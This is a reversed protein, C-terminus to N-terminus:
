AAVGKPRDDGELLVKYTHGGAQHYVILGEPNPFGDVMLSGASRLGRVCMRVAFTLDDGPGAYLVPVVTAVEPCPQAKPFNERLGDDAQHRPDFWRGVNFLAFRREDLGYGRQIGHGFWEGYHRGPGLNCLEVANQSVWGAFGFNDAGPRAM